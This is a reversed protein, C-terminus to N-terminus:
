AAAATLAAAEDAVITLVEHLRTLTIVEMIKAQPKLVVLKGGCAQLHKHTVGLLGLGASSMFSVKELNFVLRTRGAAIVALLEDKAAQAERAKLEGSFDIITVAGHERQALTM